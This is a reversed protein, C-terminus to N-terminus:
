AETILAISNNYITRADQRSTVTCTAIDRIPESFKELTLWRKRAIVLANKRDFLLSKCKTWAAGEADTAVHLLPNTSLARAQTCIHIDWQWEGNNDAIFTKIM